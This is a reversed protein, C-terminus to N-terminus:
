KGILAIFYFLASFFAWSALLCPSLRVPILKAVRERHDIIAGEWISASVLGVKSKEAEGGVM